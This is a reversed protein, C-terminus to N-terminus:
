KQSSLPIRAEVSTGKGHATEITMTGGLLSAREKMSSLGLGRQKQRYPTVPNFGRGDDIVVAIATSKSVALQIDVNKARSHKEINNLAEQVVRFLALEIDPPLRRTLKSSDVKLSIGARKVFEDSLTRVAAALGLDDLASPRLNRSIRRIEQITKEVLIRSEQAGAWPSRNNGNSQEEASKLRYRVSSLMQNISDHLEFAVRKRESEQADLIRRSLERQLQEAQRRETIDQITGEYYLTKQAADKVARISVSIWIKKHDKRLARTEHNTLLGEQELIIRYPNQRLDPVLSRNGDSRFMAVLDEPSEYGYISALAPNANILHGDAALQFIGEVANEFIGRYKVEAERAKREAQTRDSIEIQLRQM